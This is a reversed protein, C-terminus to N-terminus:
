VLEVCIWMIGVYELIIRRYEVSLSSGEDTKGLTKGANKALVDTTTTNM